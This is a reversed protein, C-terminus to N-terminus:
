SSRPPPDIPVPILSHQLSSILFSWQVEKITFSFDAHPHDSNNKSVQLNVSAGASGPPCDRKICIEKENSTKNKHHPCPLNNKHFYCVESTEQDHHKQEQSVAFPSTAQSASAYQHNHVGAEGQHMSDAAALSPLVLVWLVVLALSRVLIRLNSKKRDIEM